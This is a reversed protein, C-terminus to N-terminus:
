DRKKGSFGVFCKLAALFLKTKLGVELPQSFNEMLEKLLAKDAKLRQQKLVTLISNFISDNKRKCIVPLLSPQHEKEFAYLEDWVAIKEFYDEKKLTHMISTERQRYYYLSDPVVALTDLCAAIKYTTRADEFVKGKPYRIENFLDRKYVKNCASFDTFMRANADENCYVTVTQEKMSSPHWNQESFFVYYNCLAVQANYKEIAEMLIEYMRKDLFDDSDAFTIYEGQAADIGANRADSLGGNEKHIVRIRSDRKAWDDCMAPCNDPSGDDVLIIELNPWTQHIISEVCQDLYEEVKYVPVIVSLLPQNNEM